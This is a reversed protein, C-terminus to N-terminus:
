KKKKKKKQTQTRLGMGFFFFLFLIFFFFIHCGGILWQWGAVAMARNCLAVRGSGSIAVAM